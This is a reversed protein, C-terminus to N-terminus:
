DDSKDALGFLDPQTNLFGNSHSLCLPEFARWKQGLSDFTARNLAESEEGLPSSGHGSLRECPKRAMKGEGERKLV